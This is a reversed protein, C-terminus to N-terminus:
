FLRWRHSSRSKSIVVIVYLLIFYVDVANRGYVKLNTECDIVHLKCVCFYDGWWRYAHTINYRYMESSYFFNFGNTGVRTSALIYPRFSVGWNHSGCFHSGRNGSRSSHGLFTPSLPQLTFQWMTAFFTVFIQSNCKQGIRIRFRDLINVWTGQCRRTRLLQYWLSPVIGM